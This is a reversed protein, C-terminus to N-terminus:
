CSPTGSSSRRRSRCSVERLVLLLVASLCWSAFVDLPWHYGRLVLGISTAATMLVAAVLMMWSRRVYPALLLAAAGYAVAATATHGSPYYGTAETLPGQRDTWVKLPVVLVPVAAMVAVACLAARRDRRFWAFAVACALVPVAVQMNGLDAFFDSLRAPGRGTLALGAREDPGLLPGDAVVQWTVLAFLVLLASVRYVLLVPWRPVPPITGLHGTPDTQRAGRPTHPSRGDSRHPTGSGSAGTTHALARGPRCQPLGPGADGATGQPRPTERM